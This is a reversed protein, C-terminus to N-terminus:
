PKEEERHFRECVWSVFARAVLLLDDAIRVEPKNTNMSAGAKGKSLMLASCILIYKPSGPRFRSERGGGRSGM